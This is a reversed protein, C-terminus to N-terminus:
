VRGGLVAALVTTAVMCCAQMVSARMAGGRLGGGRQTRREAGTKPDYFTLGPAWECWRFRDNSYVTVPAHKARHIACALLLVDDIEGGGCARFAVRPREARTGARTRDFAGRERQAVERKFFVVIASRRGLSAEVAHAVEAFTARKWAVEACGPHAIVNEGDVYVVASRAELTNRELEYCRVLARWLFHAAPHPAGHKGRSRRGDRIIGRVRSAARSCDTGEDQALHQAVVAALVDTFSDAFAKLERSEQSREQVGSPEFSATTVGFARAVLDACKM